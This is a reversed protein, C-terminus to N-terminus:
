ISIGAGPAASAPLCVHQEHAQLACHRHGDPLICSGHLMWPLRWTWPWPPFWRRHMARQLGTTDEASAMSVASVTHVARAPRLMRLTLEISVM